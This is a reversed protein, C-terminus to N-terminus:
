SDTIDLTIIIHDGYGVAVSNYRYGVCRLLTINSYVRFKLTSVILFFVIRVSHVASCKVATQKLSM